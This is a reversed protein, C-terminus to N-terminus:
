DGVGAFHLRVMKWFFIEARSAQLQGDKPSSADLIVGGYEDSSKGPQAEGNQAGTLDSLLEPPSHWVEFWAWDGLNDPM